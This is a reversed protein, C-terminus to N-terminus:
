DLTQLKKQQQLSEDSEGTCPLQPDAGHGREKGGRVTSRQDKQRSLGLPTLKPHQIPFIHVCAHACV